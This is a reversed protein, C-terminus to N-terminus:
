LNTYDIDFVKKYQKYAYRDTMGAIYDVVVHATDTKNSIDEITDRWEPPLCNPNQLYFSFLESVIRKAKTTMILVKHHRYMKEMLFNRVQQLEKKFSPSFDCIKEGCDRIDNVTKIKYKKIKTETFEVVDRIM